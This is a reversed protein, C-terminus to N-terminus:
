RKCGRAEEESVVVSGVRRKDCGCVGHDIIRYCCSCRGGGFTGVCIKKRPPRGVRRGLGNM